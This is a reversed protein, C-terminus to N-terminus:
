KTKLAKNKTIEKRFTLVLLVYKFTIFIAVLGYKYRAYGFVVYYKRWEGCTTSVYHFYNCFHKTMIRNDSPTGTYAVTLRKPQGDLQIPYKCRSSILIKISKPSKGEPLEHTVEACLHVVTKYM